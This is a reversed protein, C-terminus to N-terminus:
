KNGRFDFETVGSFDHQELFSDDGVQFYRLITARVVAAIEADFNILRLVNNRTVSMMALSSSTVGLESYDGGGGGGGSMKGPAFLFM